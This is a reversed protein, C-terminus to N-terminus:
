WSEVKAPPDAEFITGNRRRAFRGSRMRFLEITGSSANRVTDDIVGGQFLRRLIGAARGQLPPPWSEFDFVAQWFRRAAVRLRARATGGPRKLEERARRLHEIGDM